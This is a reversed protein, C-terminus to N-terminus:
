KVIYQDDLYSVLASDVIVKNYSEYLKKAVEGVTLSSSGGRIDFMGQTKPILVKKGFSTIMPSCPKAEALINMFDDDSINYENKYYKYFDGDNSSNKLDQYMDGKNIFKVDGCERFSYDHNYEKIENFVKSFEDTVYIYKLDWCCDFMGEWYNLAYDYIIDGKKFAELNVFGSMDLKELSGCHYFLGDMDKIYTLNVFTPLILEKVNCCGDFMGNMRKIHPLDFNYLDLKQLGECSFFMHATSEVSKTNFSSLNLEGLRICEYFMGATSEVKETNFSSLNVERLSYCGCFMHSMSSVLSTDFTSLDLKSLNGCERFMNCMDKVNKTSFNSLDLETGSYGAFMNYCSINGKPNRVRKGDGVYILFEKHLPNDDVKNFPNVDTSDVEVSPEKYLVFDKTDYEVEAGNLICREIKSPRKEDSKFKHRVDKVFDEGIYDNM